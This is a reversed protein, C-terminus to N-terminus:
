QKLSWRAPDILYFHRLADYFAPHQQKLVDPAALFMETAVAFVDAAEGTAAKELVGPWGATFEPCRVRAWLTLLLPEPLARWGLQRAIESLPARADRPDTAQQKATDWWVAVASSRAGGDANPDSLPFLQVTLIDPYNGPAQNLLLLAAHGAIIVRAAETAEDMAGCPIFRKADIFQLVKDQYPARLEWPLRTYLPVNEHLFKLWPRPFAFYRLRWVGTAKRIRMVLWWGILLSLTAFFLYYPSLFAPIPRM